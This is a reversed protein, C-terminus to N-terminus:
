QFAFSVASWPKQDVSHPLWSDSRANKTSVAYIASAVNYDNCPSISQGYFPIIGRQFSHTFHGSFVQLLQGIKSRAGPQSLIHLRCPTRLLLRSRPAFWFHRLLEQASAQISYIRLLKLCHNSVTNLEHDIKHWPSLVLWLEEHLTMWVTSRQQKQAVHDKAEYVVSFSFTHM